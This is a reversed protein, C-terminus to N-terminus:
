VGRRLRLSRSIVGDVYDVKKEERLKKLHWRIGNSNMDLARSMAAISPIFGHEQQHWKLFTLLRARSAAGEDTKIGSM